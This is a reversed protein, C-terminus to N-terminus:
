EGPPDAAGSADELTGLAALVATAYSGASLRFRLELRDPAPWDWALAQPRVRLARREQRLGERALGDCLEALTAAQADELTRAAAASRPEGQGWLPGTPHIDGRACRDDLEPTHPEPGFVSHSGDLMWVEGELGRDWCDQRVREALVANFVASRAASILMGRQARPMRRGAFLARAKDLNGGERGFRQAGFANPVGRRAIQQLRADVADREGADLRLTLVFANNAIAGRSLKRGHWVSDLVQVGPISLTDLPPSVRKPLHLSFSQRTVAHRDKLGAWGVSMSPIGAWRALQDAVWATNQGTKEIRLYLHEGGGGPQFSLSEDVQFDAPVSRMRGRLVSPGFPQSLAEVSM